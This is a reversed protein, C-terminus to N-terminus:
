RCGPRRESARQIMAFSPRALLCISRSSARGGQETPRSQLAVACSMMKQSGTDRRSVAFSEQADGMAPGVEEASPQVDVSESDADGHEEEEMWKKGEQESMWIAYEKSSYLVIISATGQLQVFTSAPGGAWM